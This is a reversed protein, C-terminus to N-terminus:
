LRSSRGPRDSLRWRVGDDVDELEVGRERLGARIRDAAAFDKRAKAAHRLGILREIAVPDLESSLLADLDGDDTMRARTVKGSRPRRDLVDLVRDIGDIAALAARADGPALEHVNLTKVLAIV